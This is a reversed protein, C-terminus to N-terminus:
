NTAVFIKKSLYGSNNLFLTVSGIGIIILAVAAVRIFTSRMTRFRNENMRVTVKSWASDVDIKRESNINGLERWQEGTKHIDEAEFRNLLENNEVKEGSLISALEEWEKETFRETKNM